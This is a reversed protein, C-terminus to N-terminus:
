YSISVLQEADSCTDLPENEANVNTTPTHAISSTYRGLTLTIADTESLIAASALKGTRESLNIRLWLHQLHGTFGESYNGHTSKNNVINFNHNYKIKRM